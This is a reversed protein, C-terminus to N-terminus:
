AQVSIKPCHNYIDWSLSFLFTIPLGDVTRDGTIIEIKIDTGKDIKIAQGETKQYTKKLRERIM